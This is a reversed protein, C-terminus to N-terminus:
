EREKKHTVGSGKKQPTEPFPRSYLDLVGAKCNPCKIGHKAVESGYRCISCWAM